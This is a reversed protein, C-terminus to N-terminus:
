CDLEELIKLQNENRGYEKKEKGFTPKEYLLNYKLRLFFFSGKNPSERM